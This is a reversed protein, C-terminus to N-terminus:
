MAHVARVTQALDGFHPELRWNDGREVAFCRYAARRAFRYARITTSPRPLIGRINMGEIDGFSSPNRNGDALWSSGKSRGHPM